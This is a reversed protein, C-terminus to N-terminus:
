LDYITVSVGKDALEDQIIPEMKDWTGGALGCGIRPMHVSANCLPNGHPMSLIRSAIYRFGVRIATYDVPPSGDKRRGVGRQGCLNCVTIESEVRVFQVDGLQLAAERFRLEPHPWRRSLAIVFGAGWVSIDNVCHVIVKHRDGQPRTADGRVYNINNM